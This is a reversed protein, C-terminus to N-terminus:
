RSILFLLSRDSSSIRSSSLFSLMDYLVKKFIAFSTFSTIFHYSRECDSSRTTQTSNNVNGSSILYSEFNRLYPMDIEDFRINIPNYKELSVVCFKYKTATSIKGIQKMQEIRRNFHDAVTCFLREKKTDLLSEFTVEIELIELKDIKRKYESLKSNIQAQLLSSDPCDSNIAQKASDWHEPLISIGLSIFKSKRNQTFRLFMPAKGNKYTRETKLLVRINMIKISYASM